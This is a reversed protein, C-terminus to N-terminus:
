AGSIQQRFGKSMLLANATTLRKDPLAIANIGGRTVTTVIACRGRRRSVLLRRAVGMTSIENPAHIREGPLARGTAGM